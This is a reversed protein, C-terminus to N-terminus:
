VLGRREQWRERDRHWLLPFWILFLEFRSPNKKKKKLEPFHARHKRARKSAMSGAYDEYEFQEFTKCLASATHFKPAIETRSLTLQNPRPTPQDASPGRNSDAEARRENWLNHDASATEHSQGECNHFMLIARMAAWRLSSTMWTTVTHRYTYLKGRGGGGCGKGGRWDGDRILRITEPSMLGKVTMIYSSFRGILTRFKFGKLRKREKKKKCQCILPDEDFRMTNFTFTDYSWFFIYERCARGHM